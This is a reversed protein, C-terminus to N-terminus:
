KRVSRVDNAREPTLPKPTTTLEYTAFEGESSGGYTAANVAAETEFLRIRGFLLLGETNYTTNDVYYHEKQLAVIRRMMDGFSGTIKHDAQMADWVSNAVDYLLGNIKDALAGTKLEFGMPVGGAVEASDRITVEYVDNVDANTFKSTDLGRVHNVTNLRYLGARNTPDVEELTEWLKVIIIDIRLTDNSWDLYLDDKLRRVSVQLTTSGVLPQGTIGHFVQIEVPEKGGTPIEVSGAFIM